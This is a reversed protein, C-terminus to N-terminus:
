CRAGRRPVRRAVQGSRANAPVAAGARLRIEDVGGPGHVGGAPRAYVPAGRVANGDQAYGRVQLLGELVTTSGPQWVPWLFGDLVSLRLVGGADVYPFLAFKGTCLADVVMEQVNVLATTQEGMLAEPTGVTPPDSDGDWEWNLAGRTLATTYRWVGKQLHNPIRKNAKILSADAGPFLETLFSELAKGTIARRTDLESARVQAILALDNATLRTTGDM